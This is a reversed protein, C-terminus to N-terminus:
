NGGLRELLDLVQGAAQEWSFERSRVPGAASARRRFVEDRVGRHLAQAFVEAEGVPTVIAATGVIEPLSTQDSVLTPVGLAMAELPPLGFGEYLSPYVFLSAAKLLSRKKSEEVFGLVRVRTAMGTNRIEADLDFDPGAKGGALVLTESLGDDSAKRYAALLERIGKKPEISGLYLIFPEQLDYAARVGDLDLQRPVEFCSPAIGNYIRTIRSPDIGYVERIRERAHDSVTLVHDAHEVAFRSWRRLYRSLNPEVYDPHDEFIVDHIISAQVKTTKVAPVSFTTNLYVDAGLQELASPLILQDYREDIMAGDAPLIHVGRVELDGVRDAAVIMTISNGRSREGLARGLDLAARGIGGMHPHISRCDLAIHM